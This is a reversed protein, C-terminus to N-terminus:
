YFIIRGMVINVSEDTCMCRRIYTYTHHYECTPLHQHDYEMFYSAITLFYNTEPFSHLMKLLRAYALSSNDMGFFPVCVYSQTANEWWLIAFQGAIGSM